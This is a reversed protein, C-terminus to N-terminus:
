EKTMDQQLPEGCSTSARQMGDRCGNLSSTAEPYVAIYYAHTHTACLVCFCVCVVCCLSIFNIFPLLCFFLFYISPQFSSYLIPLFLSCAFLIHHYTGLNM